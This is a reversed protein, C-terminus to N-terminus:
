SEKWDYNQLKKIRRKYFFKDYQFLKGIINKDRLFQKLKLKLYIIQTSLRSSVSKPNYFIHYKFDYSYNCWKIKQGTEGISLDYIAIQNEFCWDLHKLMSIDGMNFNAYDIDYTHMFSFVIDGLHFNLTIDIPKDQDYIVYLSAKKDLIMPYILEHYYKWNILNKNYIKKEKFRRDFLKYFVDFLFDYHEKSIDGFYMKYTIQHDNELKRLKSFLNKRNRKSLQNLLYDNTDASNTLDMLFGKYQRIKKVKGTDTGAIIEVDLYDPIDAIVTPKNVMTKITESHDINLKNNTLINIIQTAYFPHIRNQLFLEFVLANSSYPKILSKIKNL